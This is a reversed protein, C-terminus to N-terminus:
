VGYDIKRIDSSSMGLRREVRWKIACNTIWGTTSYTTKNGNCWTFPGVTHLSSYRSNWGEILMNEEFSEMLGITPETGGVDVTASPPWYWFYYGKSDTLVKFGSVQLIDEICQETAEITNTGLTEMNYTCNGQLTYKLHRFTISYDVLGTTFYGEYPYEKCTETDCDWYWGEQCKPDCPTLPELRRLYEYRDRFKQYTVNLKSTSIFMFPKVINKPLQGVTFTALKENSPALKDKNFNILSPLDIKM